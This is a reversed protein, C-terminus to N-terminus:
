VCRGTKIGTIHSDSNRLKILEQMVDSIVVRSSKFDTAKRDRTVNLIDREAKDMIDDLSSATDFGEEAIEQATEILRRLHARSKIIEIYYM